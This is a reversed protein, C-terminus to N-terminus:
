WAPAEGLKLDNSNEARGWPGNALLYQGCLRDLRLADALDNRLRRKLGRM